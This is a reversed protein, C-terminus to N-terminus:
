ELIRVQFEQRLFQPMQRCGRFNRIESLTVELRRFENQTISKHSESASSPDFRM